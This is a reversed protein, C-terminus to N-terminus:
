TEAPIGCSECRKGYQAHPHEQAAPSYSPQVSPDPSLGVRLTADYIERKAPDGLVRYAENIEKIKEEAKAKLDATPFKDPHWAHSLFLYQAKIQETTATPEVEFIKYYDKM